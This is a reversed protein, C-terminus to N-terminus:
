VEHELENEYPFYKCAEWQYHNSILFIGTQTSTANAPKTGKLWNTQSVYIFYIMYAIPTHVPESM